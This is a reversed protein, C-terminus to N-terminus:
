WPLCENRGRLGESYALVYSVDGNPSRKRYSTHTVSLFPSDEFTTVSTQVHKLRKFFIFHMWDAAIDTQSAHLEARRGHRNRSRSFYKASRLLSTDEDELDTAVALCCISMTM